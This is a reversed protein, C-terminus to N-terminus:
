PAGGVLFYSATWLVITLIVSGFLTAGALWEREGPELGHGTDWILHRIGGLAHHILTWSYGFLLLRGIWSGMFWQMGTYANQGAAAALLWWAVLLTGFYLVMGTIRHLGSMAMTTTLRYIGIHPSVPREVSAKTEAM